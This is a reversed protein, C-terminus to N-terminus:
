NTPRVSATSVMGARPGAAQRSIKRDTRVQGARVSTEVPRDNNSCKIECMFIYLFLLVAKIPQIYKGNLHYILAIISQQLYQVICLLRARRPTCCSSVGYAITSHKHTHTHALTRTHTHRGGAAAPQRPQSPPM